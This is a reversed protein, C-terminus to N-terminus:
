VIRTVPLNKPSFHAKNKYSHIFCLMKSYEYDDSYIFLCLINYENRQSYIFIRLIMYEDTQSYM